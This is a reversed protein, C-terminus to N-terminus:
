TGALRDTRAAMIFDNAHLGRIKHTWWEVTVAGWETVIRPHHGQEEAIRGVEATFDLAPQFGKLKFRRKLRPVGDREVLEWADDIHRMMEEIEERGLAPEDGRCPACQEQALAM